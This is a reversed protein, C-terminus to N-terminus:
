RNSPIPIVKDKYETALKRIVEDDSNAALIKLAEKANPDIEKLMALFEIYWKKHRNNLDSQKYYDNFEITEKLNKLVVPVLSRSVDDRQSRLSENIVGDFSLLKSIVSRNCFYV